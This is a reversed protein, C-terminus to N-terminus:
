QSASQAATAMAPSANAAALLERLLSRVQRTGDDQVPFLRVTAGANPQNPSNEPVQTWISQLTSELFPRDTTLDILFVVRRLDMASLIERLEFVCGQNRSSFSRLDMLVVSAERVLRRMTIQWTNPRCFFQNVRYRGDPDPAIDLSGMRKSLDEEGSVFQRSLNGGIFDLFEHPEVAATVLDPGAILSISGLRRWRKAFADFLRQ